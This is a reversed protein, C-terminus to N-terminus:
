EEKYKNIEEEHKALEEMQLERNNVQVYFKGDYLLAQESGNIIVM